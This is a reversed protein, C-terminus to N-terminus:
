LNLKSIDDQTVVFVHRSHRTDIIVNIDDGNAEVFMKFHDNLTYEDDFLKNSDKLISIIRNSVKIAETKDSCAFWHEGSVCVYNDQAEIYFKM